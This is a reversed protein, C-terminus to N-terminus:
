FFNKISNSSLQWPIIGKWMTGPKKGWNKGCHPIKRWSPFASHAQRLIAKRSLLGTQGDHIVESTGDADSALIALSAAMGELLVNALPEGHATHLLIDMAGYVSEVDKRFPLFVVSDQIGLERTEQQLKEKLEGDGLLFFRLEPIQKLACSAIRLYDSQAKQPMFRGTNLVAISNDSLGLEKRLRFREVASPRRFRDPKVFNRIICIGSDPIGRALLHRRIADSVAPAKTNFSTFLRDLWPISCWGRFSMNRSMNIREMYPVHVLKAALAIFRSAHLYILDPYKKGLERIMSFLFFPNKRSFHMIGCPINRKRMEKGRAGKRFLLCSFQASPDIAM